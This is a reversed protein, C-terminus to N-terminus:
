QAELIRRARARLADDETTDLVKRLAERIAAAEEERQEAIVVAALAATETLGPEDMAPLIVALAAPDGGAGALGLVMRKEDERRALEFAKGLTDFDAPQEPLPQAMRALGRVAVVHHRLNDTAEAVRALHEAAAPDPWVALTRVAADRVTEHDDDLREAVAALADDGGTRALSELLAATAAPDAGDLGAIIAEAAKKADRGCVGMLALKAQYREAEDRAAKVAEVLEGAHEETALLRLARIAAMRVAGAEHGAAGLVAPVAERANRRALVDLLATQREPEAQEFAALVAPNIGEGQLRILSQRAAARVADPEAGLQEALLPVDDAGGLRALASVAAARVPVHEAEVMEVVAPRATPDGREGLAELLGAQGEVPLNPLAEIFRETAAEGPTEDRVQQLGLGRMDRDPSALLEVVMDLMEDGRAAHLGPGHLLAVALATGVAFAVFCRFKM